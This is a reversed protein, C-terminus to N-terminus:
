HTEAAGLLTKLYNYLYYLYQNRARVRSETWLVHPCGDGVPELSSRNMAQNMPSGGWVGGLQILEVMGIASACSDVLPTSESAECAM